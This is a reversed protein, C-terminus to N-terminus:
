SAGGGKRGGSQVPSGNTSQDGGHHDKVGGRKPAGRGTAATSRETELVTHTQDTSGATLRRRREAGVVPDLFYM